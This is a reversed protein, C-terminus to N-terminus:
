QKVIKSDKIFYHAGRESCVISPNVTILGNEIKIEHDLLGIKGCEVCGHLWCEDGIKGWFLGRTDVEYPHILEEHTGLRITIM